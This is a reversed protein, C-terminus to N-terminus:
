PKVIIIEKVWSVGEIYLRLNFFVNQRNDLIIEVNTDPLTVISHVKYFQIQDEHGSFTGRILLMDGDKISQNLNTIKTLNM